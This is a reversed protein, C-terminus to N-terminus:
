VSDEECLCEGCWDCGDAIQIGCGKCYTAVRLNVPQDSTEKSCQELVKRIRCHLCRDRSQNCTCEDEVEALIVRLLSVPTDTIMINGNVFGGCGAMHKLICKDGNKSSKNKRDMVSNVCWQTEVQARPIMPLNGVHLM